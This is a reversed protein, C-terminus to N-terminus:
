YSALMRALYGYDQLDNWSGQEAPLDRELIEIQDAMQITALRDAISIRTIGLAEITETIVLQRSRARRKSMYLAIQQVNLPAPM